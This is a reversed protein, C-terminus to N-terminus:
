WMFDFKPDAYVYRALTIKVDKFFSNDNLSEVKAIEGNSDLIIRFVGDKSGLWLNGSKDETIKYAELSLLDQFEGGDVSKARTSGPDLRFYGQQPIKMWTRKKSDVFVMSIKDRLSADMEFPLDCYQQNNTDFLAIGGNNKTAYFRSSDLSSLKVAHRNSVGFDFPEGQPYELFPSKRLNFRYVGKDFSGLWFGTTESAYFCSTRLQRDKYAFFDKEFEKNAKFSEIDEVFVAGQSLTGLWLHNNLDLASSNFKKEPFIVKSVAEYKLPDSSVSSIVLAGSQLTVLFKSRGLRTVSTCYNIKDKLIIRFTAEKLDLLLLGATTAYLYTHAGTQLSGYFEVEGNEYFATPTYEEVLTYQENFALIGYKETACLILGTAENVTIDRIVPGKLAKKAIQNSYITSFRDQEYDYISIGEDTGIWITGKPDERLTRVRNSALIHKDLRNKYTVFRYGDYRNLGEYTAIWIFGRSDEMIDTVGNHALGDSITYNKYEQGDSLQGIGDIYSMLCLFAAVIYTLSNRSYM